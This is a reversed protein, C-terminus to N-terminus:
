TLSTARSHATLELDQLCARLAVSLFHSCDNALASGPKVCRVETANWWVSFLGTIVCALLQAFPPPLKIWMKLLAPINKQVMALIMFVLVEESYM